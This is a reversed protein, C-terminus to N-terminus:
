GQHVKKGKKWSEINWRRNLRFQIQGGQNKKYLTAFVWLQLDNEVFSGSIILSKQLFLKYLYPM